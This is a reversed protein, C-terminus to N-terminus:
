EKVGSFSSKEQAAIALLEDAHERASDSEALGSLMRALEHEREDRSLVTVGSVVGEGADDKAVTVHNDAWAAVQALHTVVIVQSHQALQALRRGIEIAARGGVGADIEDFVFTPFTVSRAMVVEIALMVRSLEGGSALKGIEGPVTSSHAAFLLSVSDCGHAAPEAEEIDFTISAKPMSLAALEAGVDQSFGHASKKRQETLQAGKELMDAEAAEVQAGMTALSEGAERLRLLEEGAQTEFVLVASTDEGYASLSGLDARRQEIDELSREGLEDFGSLYESLRAARDSLQLGLDTLATAHETLTEDAAAAQNLQAAAANVQDVANAADDWDAGTLAAQAAAVATKLEHASALRNALATLEADEGELPRVEEIKELANELFEIRQARETATATLEAHKEKLSTWKAYAASYADRVKALEDGGYSDLLERQRTRSRLTMQESQGHMSVLEQGIDSLLGAPVTRGGATARARGSAPITRTVILEGEAEGGADEVREGVAPQNEIDFIGEVVAKDEGARVVHSGSRAGLLLDLATVFMTKGAGTEGTVVTLGPSLEVEAAKIVGLNEIRLVEIM